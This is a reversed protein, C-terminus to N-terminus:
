KLCKCIECKDGIHINNCWCCGGPIVWFADMHGCSHISVHPMKRTPDYLTVVDQRNTWLSIM